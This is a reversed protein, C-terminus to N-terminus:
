GMSRELLLCVTVAEASSDVVVWRMGDVTVIQGPVKADM